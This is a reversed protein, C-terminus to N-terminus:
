VIYKDNKSSPIKICIIECDELFIPCSIVNPNIIFIDNKNYIINNIIMKGKVLINIEKSKKHYHYDWFTNKTHQLYGIECETNKEISPVFNGVLWGRTYNKLEINSFFYENNLKFILYICEEEFQISTENCIFINTDINIKGNILLFLVNSYVISNGHKGFHISCLKNYENTQDIIKKFANIDYKIIPCKDNYYNFYDIPEGVPYFFEDDKLKYTGVTYNMNLLAQYTYSLYFEGNPARINNSYIYEYAKLFLLGSKYFHVGVLADNSIAKKEVFEIPIMNKDYKVFSHKDVSDIVIEYPPEYTLVCGDYNMSKNFFHLFNWNLIQDSNSIILPIENSILSKALYATSAPGETLYNVSLISCIFNNNKCISNLHIRLLTNEEDSERLIFIFQIKLDTFINVLSLIASDIMKTLNIDVPLLYKNESFGYETFRSGLGAMPIIINLEVENNQM